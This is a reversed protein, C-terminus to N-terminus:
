DEANSRQDLVDIWHKLIPTIKRISKSKLRNTKIELIMFEIDSIIDDTSDPITYDIDENIM